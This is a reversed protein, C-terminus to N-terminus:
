NQSIHIMDTAMGGRKNKKRNRIVTTGGSIETGMMTNKINHIPITMPKM